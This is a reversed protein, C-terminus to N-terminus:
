FCFFFVSSCVGPVTLYPVLPPVYVAFYREHVQTVRHVIPIDRGVIKYVVIEGVEVPSDGLTLFLLDGRYFAPEMSGSNGFLLM